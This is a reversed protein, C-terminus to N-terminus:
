IELELPHYGRAVGLVQMRRMTCMFERLYVSIYMKLIINYKKKFIQCSCMESLYASDHGRREKRSGLSLSKQM